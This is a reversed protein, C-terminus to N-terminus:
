FRVRLGGFAAIPPAPSQFRNDVGPGNTTAGAPIGPTGIGTPDGFTGFTAYKSNLVNQVTGFVEFYETVEYTSHLDLVQYAPLESTLNAEDGRYYQASVFNLSAGITWAPTPRYDAGAKIRHEPIGPLRDGAKIQINGNVDAAPNSPSNITLPSQFTADVLSYNAYFSWAKDAYSLSAEVGQRRTGGINQFFGTSLSTSIGYIDDDLDTRFLGANWRFRGPLFDALAFRGRLGTEYTHAVVQKLNPPDSALSSPLLCPVLPNSCEIESPTPARNAESYGAYATLNEALKYTAGIAPNFRTYENKGNLETGRRDTLDIDAVNLRGSATVTLADTLDFTDTLYLGYHRTSTQLLVPVANFGTDEPTDVFLGSATVLLSSNIVGLEARSQFDVDAKDISGGIVAHHTVGFLDGDYSAQLSGGLGVARISETDNEGIPATGGNSIDPLANGGADTVPTTGDEQCLTNNAAACATYNTTNGNAVTQRYERYYFSSQISLADSARYGGNLTLFELQNFNNQPSTFILARSIALEQIPAPSQGFLRNNAGTFSADVTLRDTHVGFDAYFQRVADPSFQRWGDQDLARGAAYLGYIGSQQGYELSIGRRGFSGGTLELEGGHFKFGDKMTVIAAGGLANLGYVPNGSVVDVRDIAVDPFLDWNVTDGFAENIRAGNQYVALGQPTGLVPSAEFGRFLIDPQFPDDVNDNVSISGLKANLANALSASGERTLDRTSLSQANGPIKDIDIGTGPLPTRGIITVTPVDPSAATQALTAGQWAVSTLAAAIISRTVCRSSM